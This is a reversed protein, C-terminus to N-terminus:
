LNPNVESWRDVPPLLGIGIIEDRMKCLHQYSDALTALDEADGEPTRPILGDPGFDVDAAMM